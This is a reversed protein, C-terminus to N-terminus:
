TGNREMPVVTATKLKGDAVLSFAVSAGIREATLLRVLDDVGSVPVGDIAVIVEGVALGSHAAPGDPETGTIAAGFSQNLGLALGTRRPLPVTQAAIGIWARRVRGHRVIESM